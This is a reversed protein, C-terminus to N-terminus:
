KGNRHGLPLQHLWEPVIVARLLEQLTLGRESAELNVLRFSEDQISLMLKAM